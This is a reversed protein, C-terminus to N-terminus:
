AQKHMTAQLEIAMTNTATCDISDIQGVIPYVM